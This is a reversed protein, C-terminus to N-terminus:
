SVTLDPSQAAAGGPLSVRVTYTGATLTTPVVVSVSGPRM